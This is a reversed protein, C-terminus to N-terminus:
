LLAAAISHLRCSHRQEDDALAHFLAAHEVFREAAERYRRAANLEETYHTRVATCLSRHESIAGRAATCCDGTLLFYLASLRRAHCAEEQAIARFVPSFRGGCRSLALYAAHATLEDSVMDVLTAPLTMSVPKTQLVRQWVAQVTSADFSDM